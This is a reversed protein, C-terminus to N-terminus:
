LPQTIYIVIAAGAFIFTGINVYKLIKKGQDQNINQNQKLFKPLYYQALITDTIACTLLAIALIDNGNM